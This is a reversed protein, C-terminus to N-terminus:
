WFVYMSYFVCVLSQQAIFSNHMQMKLISYTKIPVNQVVSKVSCSVPSLFTFFIHDLM